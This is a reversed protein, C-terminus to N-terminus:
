EEPKGFGDFPLRGDVGPQTRVVAGQASLRAAPELDHPGAAVVDPFQQVVPV